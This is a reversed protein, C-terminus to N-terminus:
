GERRPDGLSWDGLEHVMAALRAQPELVAWLSGGIVLVCRRGYGVPLAAVVPSATVAIRRPPRVGAARALDGVLGHLAPTDGDSLLVIGDGPLRAPRPYSAAFAAVLGVGFVWFLPHAYVFTAVGLAGLALWALLAGAAVFRAVLDRWGWRRAKGAAMRELVRLTVREASRSARGREGALLGHRDLGWDCSRCWTVTRADAVM